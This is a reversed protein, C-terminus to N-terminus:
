SRAGYQPDLEASGIKLRADNPSIELHSTWGLVAGAHRDGVGSVLRVTWPFWGRDLVSTIWHRAASDDPLPGGSLHQWVHDHDIALRLGHADHQTTPTLEVHTGRLTSGPARRWKCSRGACTTLGRIRGRRRVAGREHRWALAAYDSFTVKTALLAVFWAKM